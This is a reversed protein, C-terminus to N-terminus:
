NSFYIGPIFKTSFLRYSVSFSREKNTFSRILYIILYIVFEKLHNKLSSAALPKTRNNAAIIANITLLESNESKYKLLKFLNADM